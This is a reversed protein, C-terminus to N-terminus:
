RSKRFNGIIKKFLGMPRLIRGARKAQSRGFIPGSMRSSSLQFNTSMMGGAFAMMKSDIRKLDLSDARTTLLLPTSTRAGALVEAYRAADVSTHVALTGIMRSKIHLGPQNTASASVGRSKSFADHAMTQMVMAQSLPTRTVITSSAATKGDPNVYVNRDSAFAFKKSRKLEEELDFSASATASRESRLYSSITNPGGISVSAAPSPAQGYRVGGSATSVPIPAYVSSSGGGARGNISSGVANVLAYSLQQPRRSASDNLFEAVTQSTDKGFMKVGAQQLSKATSQGIAGGGFVTVDSVGQVKIQRLVDTVISQYSDDMLSFGIASAGEKRAIRVIEESSKANGVVYIVDFGSDKISQAVYKSGRDHGDNLGVIVVRPMNANDPARAIDRWVDLEGSGIKSMVDPTTWGANRSYWVGSLVEARLSENMGKLSALFGQSTLAAVNGTSGLALSYESALKGEKDMAGLVNLVRDSLAREDTLADVNGTIGIADFWVSSGERGLKNFADVVGNTFLRNDTLAAINETRKIEYLLADQVDPRLTGISGLFRDNALANVNSTANIAVLLNGAVITDLNMIRDKIGAIEADTASPANKKIVAEAYRDIVDFTFQM